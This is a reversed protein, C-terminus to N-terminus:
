PQIKVRPQPGQPEFRIDTIEISDLHWEIDAMSSQTAEAVIAAARQNLDRGKRIRRPAKKAIRPFRGGKEFRANLEEESMELARDAEKDTMEGEMGDSMGM